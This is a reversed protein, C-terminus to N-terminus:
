VDPATMGYLLPLAGQELSQALIKKGIEGFFAWDKKPLDPM